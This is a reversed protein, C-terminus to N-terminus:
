EKTLPMYWDETLGAKNRADVNFPGRIVGRHYSKVIKHFTEIPKLHERDCLYNFWKFGCAVHTIEETCNNNLINISIIDKNKQFKELSLAYTDLGRAEHLMNIIALRELLGDSTDAASKWLGAHTPLTGYPYSSQELRNYWSIFHNAEQRAIDVLEDYFEKPMKYEVYRAICDWFLDIAYSEAHAIGHITLEIANKSINIKNSWNISEQPRGPSYPIQLTDSMDSSIEKIEGSQWLDVYYYTLEVKRLLDCCSLVNIAAEKLTLNHFIQIISFKKTNVIHTHSMM